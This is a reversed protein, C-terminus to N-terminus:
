VAKRKRQFEQKLKEQYEGMRFNFIHNPEFLLPQRAFFDAVLSDLDPSAFREAIECHALLLMDNLWPFDNAEITVGQLIRFADAANGSGRSQLIAAQTRQAGVPSKHQAYEACLSELRVLHSQFDGSEICNLFEHLGDFDYDSLRTAAENTISRLRSLDGQLELFAGLHAWTEGFFPLGRVYVFHDDAIKLEYYADLLPLVYDIAKELHNWLYAYRAQAIAYAAPIRPFTFADFCGLMNSVDGIYEYEQGLSFAIDGSEPCASRGDIFRRLAEVRDGRHFAAIGWFHHWTELEAANLRKSKLRSLEAELQEVRGMEQLKDVLAVIRNEDRSGFLAM